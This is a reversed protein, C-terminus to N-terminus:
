KLIARFQVTGKNGPDLKPKFVWRINTYDNAVAARPKGDKSKVKLKKEKAFTKGGDVSFTIDTGSGFASGIKYTMNKPIPDNIVINSAPQKGINRFYITYLLEDNPVVKEAKVERQKKNGKKDTYTEVKRVENRVEIQGKAAQAQFPAAVLLSLIFINALNSIKIKKRMEKGMKKTKKIEM